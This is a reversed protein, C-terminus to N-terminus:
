RPVKKGKNALYYGLLTTVTTKGVGGKYNAICISGPHKDVSLSVLKQKVKDPLDM